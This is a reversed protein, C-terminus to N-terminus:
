TVPCGERHEENAETVLEALAGDDVAELKRAEHLRQRTIGLDTLTAPTYIDPGTVNVPAGQTAIDGRAQGEDVLEAMKKLARVKIATAHNVAFSFQRM